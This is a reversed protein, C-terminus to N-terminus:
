IRGEIVARVDRWFRTFVRKLQPIIIANQRDNALELYVGYDVSHALLFGIVEKKNFTKVFMGSAAAGTRNRWYKGRSAAQPPQKRNVDKIVEAAWFEAVAFIEARVKEPYRRLVELFKKDGTIKAM